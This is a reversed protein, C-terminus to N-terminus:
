ITTIISNQKIFYQHKNISDDMGTSSNGEKLKSLYDNLKTILLATELNSSNRNKPNEIEIKMYDVCELLLDSLTSIDDCLPNEERLYYFLNELSHALTTINSLMIMASSGKITHIIRFIENISAPTFSSVKECQLISQELQDLLHLNEFIFTNSVPGNKYQDTYQDSM